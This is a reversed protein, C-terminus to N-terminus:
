CGWVFPPWWEQTQLLYFPSLPTSYLRSWTLPPWQQLLPLLICMYVHECWSWNPYTLYELNADPYLRADECLHSGDSRHRCYISHHYPPQIYDQEHWCPDNSFLYKYKSRHRHSIHIYIQPMCLCCLRCCVFCLCNLVIQTPYNEFIFMSVGAPIM